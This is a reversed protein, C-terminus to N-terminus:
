GQGPVHIVDNEKTEGSLVREVEDLDFANFLKIGNVYLTPVAQVGLNKTYNRTITIPDSSDISIDEVDKTIGYKELVTQVYEESGWNENISDKALQTQIDYLNEPHNKEVYYDVHSLFLSTVNLLVIPQGTYNAIGTNIYKEKIVPLVEGMWKHCWPCSYDFALVISNEAEENGLKVKEKVDLDYKTYVYEELNEVVSKQDAEATNSQCGTFFLLIGLGLLFWKIKM